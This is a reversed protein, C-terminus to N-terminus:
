HCTWSEPSSEPSPVEVQRHIGGEAGAATRRPGRRHRRRRRRRQAAAARDGTLLAIDAIGLERLEALVGAAEPRVRDRAGIVGLVVGDRAVLLATQGAADLQELLALAEPPLAVGQEELLRRTGVVLTGAATQARSAPAPIPAPVRDVADLPLNRTPAEQLILRALPHESRQEATAAARLLEDASVGGLRGVDGLELRGETSRAPRTSPSPASM